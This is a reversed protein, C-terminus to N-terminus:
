PIGAQARARRLTTYALNNITANSVQVYLSRSDGNQPGLDTGSTIFRIPLGGPPVDLTFQVRRGSTGTRVTALTRDGAVITTSAGNSIQVAEEIQLVHNINAAQSSARPRSWM